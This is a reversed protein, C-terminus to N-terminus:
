RVTSGPWVDVASYAVCYYHTKKVFSTVQHITQKEM